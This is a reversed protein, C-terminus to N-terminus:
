SAQQTKQTAKHITLTKSSLNTTTNEKKQFWNTKEGFKLTVHKSLTTRSTIGIWIYAKRPSEFSM